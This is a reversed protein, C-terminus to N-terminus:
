LKESFNGALLNELQQIRNALNSIDRFKRNREFCIASRQIYFIECNGTICRNFHGSFRTPPQTLPALSYDFFTPQGYGSLSLESTRINPCCPAHRRPAQAVQTDRPEDETLRTGRATTSVARTWCHWNARGRVFTLATLRLPSLRDLACVRDRPERAM